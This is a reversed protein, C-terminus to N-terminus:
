NTKKPVFQEIDSLLKNWSFAKSAILQRASALEIADPESLATRENAKSQRELEKKYEEVKGAQAAVLGAVEDAKASVQGKESNVWLGLWLSVFFVVAIAIWFLRHNAFPRSALNLSTRMSQLSLRSIMKIAIWRVLM